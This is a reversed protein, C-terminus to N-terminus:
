SATAPCAVPFTGVSGDKQGVTIDATASSTFSYYRVIAGTYSTIGGQTTPATTTGTTGCRIYNITTKGNSADPNVNATATTTVGSLYYSTSPSASTLDTYAAPYKGTPGDSAYLEAKKQVTAAAAKAASDNARSTIGNYSVITIAALIAIVVVVILLEVITFGNQKQTNSKINKLSM